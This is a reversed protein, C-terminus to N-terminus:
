RRLPHSMVREALDAVPMVHATSFALIVLTAHHVDANIFPWDPRWSSLNTFSGPM